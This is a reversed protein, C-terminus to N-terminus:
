TIKLSDKMILKIMGFLNEMEMKKVMKINDKFNLIIKILKLALDKKNITEGNDKSFMKKNYIKTDVKVKLKVQKGNVKIINVM